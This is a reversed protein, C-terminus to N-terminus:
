ADPLANHAVEVIQCFDHTADQWVVAAAKIDDSLSSAQVHEVIRNSLRCAYKLLRLAIVISRIAKLAYNPGAM